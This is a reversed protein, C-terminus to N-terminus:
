HAGGQPLAYPENTPPLAFGPGQTPDVSLSHVESGFGPDGERNRLGVGRGTGAGGEWNGCGCVGMVKRLRDRPLPAPTGRNSLSLLDAKQGLSEREGNRKQTDTHIQFTCM